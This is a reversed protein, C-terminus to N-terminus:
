NQKILLDSVSGQPSIVQFLYLSPAYLSFPITYSRSDGNLTGRSIIKGELGVIRYESLGPASEFNLYIYNDDNHATMNLSNTNGRVDSVSTIRDSIFLGGTSAMVLFPFGSRYTVAFGWVNSGVDGIENETWPVDSLDEVSSDAIRVRLVISDGNIYGSDAPYDVQNGGIYLEDGSPTANIMLAYLSTDQFRIRQWTQGYDTSKHLGGNVPNQRLSYGATMYVTGPVSPSWAFNAIDMDPLIGPSMTSPTWTIGGNSSRYVYALRGGAVLVNASDPSVSIARMRDTGTLGPIVSLSDWTEGANLSRYVIGNNFRIAYMTDPNQPNFAVANSGPFEILSGDSSTLVRNWTEGGDTSRDIGDFANGGAYLYSGRRPHVKFLLIESAGGGNGILREEWTLGADSSILFTRSVNGAYLISPNEPNAAVSYLSRNPISVTWVTWVQAFCFTNALLLLATAFSTFM